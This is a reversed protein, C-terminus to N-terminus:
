KERSFIYIIWFLKFNLWQGLLDQVAPEFKLRLLFWGLMDWDTASDNIDLFSDSSIGAIGLNQRACVQHSECVGAESLPLPNTNAGLPPMKNPGLCNKGVEVHFHLNSRYLEGMCGWVILGLFGVGTSISFIGIYKKFHSWMYCTTWSRTWWCHSQSKNEGLPEAQFFGSSHYKMSVLGRFVLPQSDVKRKLFDKKWPSHYHEPSYGGVFLWLFFKGNQGKRWIIWHGWFISPVHPPVTKWHVMSFVVGSFECTSGLLTTKKPESQNEKELCTVKWTLFKRPSPIPHLTCWRGRLFRTRWRQRLHFGRQPHPLAKLTLFFYNFPQTFPDDDYLQCYM